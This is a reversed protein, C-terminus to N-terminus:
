DKVPKFYLIDTISGAREKLPKLVAEVEMDVDVEEPSIEDIYHIIGGETEPICILAIIKPKDLQRGNIDIYQVTYSKIFGRARVEVFQSIEDFCRICFTKAPMYIIDCKGCKGGTLVGKEKLNKMFIEGALGVTYIHKEVEMNGYWRKLLKPNGSKDWSM